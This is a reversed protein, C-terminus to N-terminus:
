ILGEKYRLYILCNNCKECRRGDKPHYCNWIDNELDIGRKRLENYVEPKTMKQNRNIALIPWIRIRRDAENLYLALLEMIIYFPLTSDKFSYPDFDIKGIGKSGSIVYDAGIVEAYNLALSTIILNRLPIYENSCNQYEKELYIGKVEVMNLEEYGLKKVLPGAKMLEALVYKQGYNVYFPYIKAEPFKEKALISALVSDAGGSFEVIIRM